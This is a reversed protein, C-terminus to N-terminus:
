NVRKLYLEGGVLGQVLQWMKVFNNLSVIMLWCITDNLSFFYFFFTMKLIEFYYDIVKYIYSVHIM